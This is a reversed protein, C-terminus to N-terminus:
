NIFCSSLISIKKLSGEEVGKFCRINMRIDIPKGRDGSLWGYRHPAVRYGEGGEGVWV